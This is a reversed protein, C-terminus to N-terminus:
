KEWFTKTRGQFCQRANQPLSGGHKCLQRVMADTKEDGEDEEESFRVMLDEEESDDQKPRKQQKRKLIQALKSASKSVDGEDDEVAGDAKRKARLKASTDMGKMVRAVADVSVFRDSDYPTNGVTTLASWFHMAAEENDPKGAKIRASQFRTTFNSVTEGPRQSVKMYKAKADLKAELGGFENRLAHFIEDVSPDYDDDDAEMNSVVMRVPGSLNDKLNVAAVVDPWKNHTAITRFAKEFQKLGSGGSYPKGLPLQPAVTITPQLVVNPNGSRQGGHRVFGMQELLEPTITQYQRWRESRNGNNDEEENESEQPTEEEFTVHRPTRQRPGRNELTPEEESLQSLNEEKGVEGNEEEQDESVPESEPLPQSESERLARNRARQERESLQRRPM